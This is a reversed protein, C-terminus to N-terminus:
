KALGEITIEVREERPDTVVVASELILRGNCQTISDDVIVRAQKLCDLICTLMGDQDKAANAVFFQFSWSPHVLPSRPGWQIRAYTTLADIQAKTEQDYMHARGGYRRNRPRLKNKKSPIAGRLILKM